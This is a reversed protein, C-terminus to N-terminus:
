ISINVYCLLYITEAQWRAVIMNVDICIACLPNLWTNEGGNVCVCNCLVTPLLTYTFSHSLIEMQLYRRPTPKYYYYLM